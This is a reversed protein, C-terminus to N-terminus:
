PSMARSDSLICKFTSGPHQDAIVRGALMCNDHEAFAGIMQATQPAGSGAVLLLLWVFNTM